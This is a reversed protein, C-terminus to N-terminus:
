NNGKYFTNIERASLEHLQKNANELKIRASKYENYAKDYNTKRKAVIKELDKIAKQRQKIELSHMEKAKREQEEREAIIDSYKDLKNAKQSISDTLERVHLALDSVYCYKKGKQHTKKGNCRKSIESISIGEGKAADTCSTYVVGTDICIVPKSGKSRKNGNADMIVNESLRIKM